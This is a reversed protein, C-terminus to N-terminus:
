KEVFILDFSHYPETYGWEGRVQGAIEVGWEYPGAEWCVRWNKGYCTRANEAPSQIFVETEKQGTEVALKKLVNYLGRAASRASPYSAADYDLNLKFNDVDMKLM